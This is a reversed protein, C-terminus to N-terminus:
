TRRDLTLIVLVPTAVIAILLASSRVWWDPTLLWVVLQSALVLAIIVGNEVRRRRALIGQQRHWRTRRPLRPRVTAIAARRREVRTRRREAAARGVAAAHEHEARRRARDKSM